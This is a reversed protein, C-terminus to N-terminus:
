KAQGGPQSSSRSSSADDEREEPRLEPAEQHEHRYMWQPMRGTLWSPNMPYVAPNFVTSYMHWILIALTALWAEYYHIVLMVDLLGKPFWQAALNDFWLMLGTGIMVAAGWVLAWYEAKEVYSFRGFRPRADRLGLNFLIMEVFQAFDKKRPWIDRLFERGRSTNLFTVHWGSTLIFLVASVRHIIGRVPFGGEWGFLFKVWWAESFRLAFGSLVLVVFTVMLFTHQWLENYNM